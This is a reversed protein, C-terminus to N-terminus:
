GEPVTFTFSSISIIAGASISTSNILMDGTGVGTTTIDGDWRANNDSDVVRFWAATGAADASSDDTITNATARGGPTADVANGFAPDSMTLEALLTQGSVATDADAPQSGDYIRVKGAGSGADVSDVIADCAAIANANTINTNAM